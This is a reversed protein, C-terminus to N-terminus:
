IVLLIGFVEMKDHRQNGKGKLQTAAIEDGRPNWVGLEFSRNVGPVDPIWCHSLPNLTTDAGPEVATSINNGKSYGTFNQLSDGDVTGIIRHEADLIALDQNM